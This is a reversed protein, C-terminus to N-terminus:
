RRAAARSRRRWAQPRSAWTGFRRVDRYAVDSGNDLAVVARRYPDDETGKPAPYLLNGTMRLHVLLHRGSEFDVILYKGRRRVDAVREGELLAAVAAPPEPRTLRPDFIEVREFRRGTLSPALRSRITEVEPLEPM